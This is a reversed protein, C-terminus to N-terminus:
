KSWIKITNLLADVGIPVESLAKETTASRNKYLHAILLKVAAEAAFPLTTWGAVYRIRVANPIDQALPWSIGYDLVVRNADGYEDLAYESGTITQEDGASDNYKIHTISTVPSHDLMITDDAPFEDLVMEVTLSAFARRTYHECYERAATILATILADDDSTDVKCQLKAETLTVPETGVATIVKFM